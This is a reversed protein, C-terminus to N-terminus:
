GSFEVLQWWKPVSVGADGEWVAGALMASGAPCAPSGVVELSKPGSLVCVCPCVVAVSSRFGSRLIEHADCM